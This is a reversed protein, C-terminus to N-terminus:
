IATKTITKWYRHAYNRREDNAELAQMGHHIFFPTADAQAKVLLGDVRAIRAVAEADKLLASGYGSHQASPDVYIGHLLMGTKGAPCHRAEAPEWAAVGVIGAADTEAVVMILHKLDQETYRYSPLSLRKVREPLSWGMVAATIVQNIAPLDASTAARIQIDTKNM